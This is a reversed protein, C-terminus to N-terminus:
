RASVDFLDVASMGSADEPTGRYCVIQEVFLVCESAASTSLCDHPVCRRKTFPAIACDTEGSLRVSRSPGLEGSRISTPATSAGSVM